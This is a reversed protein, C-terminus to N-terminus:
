KGNADSQQPLCVDRVVVNKESNSCWSERAQKGSYPRAHETTLLHVSLTMDTGQDNSAPIMIDGDVRGGYKDWGCILVQYTKKQGSLTTLLSKTFMTAAEGLLAETKCQARHGTEACDVGKIRLKLGLKDLPPPLMPALLAVTDGDIVHDVVMANWQCQSPSIETSHVGFLVCQCLLILTWM